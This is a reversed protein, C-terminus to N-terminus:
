VYSRQCVFFLHILDDEDSAVAIKHWSCLKCSSFANIKDKIWHLRRNTVIEKLM